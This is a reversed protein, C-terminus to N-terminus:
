TGSGPGQNSRATRANCGDGAITQSRKNHWLEKRGLIAGVHEIEIMYAAVPVTKPHGLNM